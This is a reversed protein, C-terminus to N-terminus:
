QPLGFAVGADLNAKETAAVNLQSVPIDREQGDLVTVTDRSLMYNHVKIAHGDKFILTV